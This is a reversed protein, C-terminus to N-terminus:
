NDGAPAGTCRGAVDAFFFFSAHEKKSPSKLWKKVENMFALNHTLIFLQQANQLRGKLLNFTYNLAGADLSSVPDDIVVIQTSIDRGEEELKSLFYCLAIATREGESLPGALVAGHRLIRYGEEFVELRLEGHGLYARLAANIREVAPGHDRVEVRLAAARDVLKTHLRQRVKQAAEAAAAEERLANHEASREILVAFKLEDRAKQQRETFVDQEGNHREVLRMLRDLRESLQGFAETIIDGGLKDPWNSKNPSRAKETIASVAEGIIGKLAHLSSQLKGLAMRYAQTLSASLARENPLNSGFSRITETSDRLVQGTAEIEGFFQDIREDLAERLAILRAESIENGCFVCSGLNHQHHYEYGTKLWPIMAPHDRMEQLSLGSITTEACQRARDLAARLSQIDLAPSPLKEYAGAQRILKRRDEREEESLATYSAAASSEYDQKLSGAHYQRGLTLMEAVIRATDTYFTSLAGQKAKHDAQAGRRQEDRLPIRREVRELLAARRSATVGIYFVPNARGEGWRLNENIFDINFVLVRRALADAQQDPRIARGDNLTVEFRGDSPVVSGPDGTDLSRLLRSLTTKGSGNYGYILNYRKCEPVGHDHRYEAFIGVRQLVKICEITPPPM